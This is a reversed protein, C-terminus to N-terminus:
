CFFEGLLSLWSLRSSFPHNSFSPSLAPRDMKSEIKPLCGLTRIPNFFLPALTTKESRFVGRVVNLVARSFFPAQVVFSHISLMCSPLFSTGGGPFMLPLNEEFFAVFFSLGRGEGAPTHLPKHGTEHRSLNCSIFFSSVLRAPLSSIHLFGISPPLMAPVDDDQDNSCVLSPRHIIRHPGSSPEM